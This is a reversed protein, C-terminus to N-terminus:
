AWEVIMQLQSLSSREFGAKEFPGGAEEPCLAPVRWTKQPYRAALARLMRTAQGQRRAQPAVLLARIAVQSAEPDSLLVYAEGLQYAVDPPGLHALSEGSVQWPLDPLGCATVMRALERVDIEVLGAGQPAEEGADHPPSSAYGVLRRVTRFGCKRYLRVAPANEEIVELVMAREGRARAEEFLRAMLWSGVGAGRAEPVLAMAALRVTWGRRAILAIGVAQGDSMVVQSGSVDIGDTRLMHHLEFRDLEIPIVYDAFGRKLLDLARDLGEDLVSTRELHAAEPSM